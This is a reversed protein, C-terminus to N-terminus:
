SFQYKDPDDGGEMVMKIVKIKELTKRLVEPTREYLRAHMKIAARYAQEMDMSHSDLENLSVKTYGTLDFPAESRNARYLSGPEDTNIAYIAHAYLNRQRIRKQLNAILAEFEELLEKDNKIFNRGAEAIFDIKGKSSQIEKVLATSYGLELAFFLELYGSVNDEVANWLGIIHAIKLAHEPHNLLGQKSWAM